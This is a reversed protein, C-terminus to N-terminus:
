RISDAEFKQQQPIKDLRFLQHQYEPIGKFILRVQVQTSDFKYAVDKPCFYAFVSDYEALKAIFADENSVVEVQRSDVILPLQKAYIFDYANFVVLPIENKNRYESPLDMISWYISIRDLTLTNFLLLLVFVSAMTVRIWAQKVFSLTYPIFLLISPLAAVFYRIDKYSVLYFVVLAWIGGMIFLILPLYQIFNTETNTEISKKFTKKSYKMGVTLIVAVAIAVIFSIGFYTLIHDKLRSLTFDINDSAYSDMRSLAVDAHNDAFGNNFSKYFILCLAYSLVLVVVLFLLNKPQKYILSIIGLIGGLMLIYPISLYGTMATLTTLLTLILLNSFSIFKKRDVIIHCSYVFCIAFLVFFLEQLQYPRLFLTNCVSAGNFSALSLTLLILLKDKFLMKALKYILIFSIAFILFNLILGRHIYDIPADSNLGLMSIRLLSYYFNTHPADHNNVRLRRVDYAVTSLSNDKPYFTAWFETNRYVKDKAFTDNWWHADPTATNYTYSSFIISLDEDWFNYEKDVAYFFRLGFATVFILLIWVWMKNLKDFRNRINGM